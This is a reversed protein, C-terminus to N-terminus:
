WRQFAAVAVSTARKSPARQRIVGCAISRPSACTSQGPRQVISTLPATSAGTLMAAAVAILVREAGQTGLAGVMWLSTALAGAISGFTNAAYVRAISGDPLCRLALPFSAGWLITAPLLVWLARVFDLEISFWVDSALGPNIPWYPLSRSM